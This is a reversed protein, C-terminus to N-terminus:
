CGFKRKVEEIVEDSIWIGHRRMDETIKVFDRKVIGRSIAEYILGLVGVVNLGISKAIERPIKEDILLLDANIRKALVIAEAEGREIEKCLVEISLEEIKRVEIWEAKAIIDSGAKGKGKEVVEKWVEEPLIIKGFIKQLLSLLGLKSLAILPGSNSVVIM